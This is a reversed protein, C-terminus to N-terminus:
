CIGPLHEPAIAEGPSSLIVALEAVHELEQDNGPWPHAVLARMAEDSLSPVRRHSGNAFIEVFYRALLEIDEGGRERLPPIQVTAASLLFLFDGRFHQERCM